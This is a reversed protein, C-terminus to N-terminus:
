SQERSAFFTDFDPHIPRPTWPGNPRRPSVNIWETSDTAPITARRGRRTRRFARVFATMAAEWTPFTEGSFLSGMRLGRMENRYWKWGEGTVVLGGEYQAEYTVEYTDRHENGRRWQLAWGASARQTEPLVLKKRRM